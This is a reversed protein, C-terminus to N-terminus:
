FVRRFWIWTAISFRLSIQQSLFNWVSRQPSVIFVSNIRWHSRNNQLLNILWRAAAWNPRIMWLICRASTGFCIEQAHCDKLDSLQKWFYCSSFIFNSKTGVSHHFNQFFFYLFSFFIHSFIWQGCNKKWWTQDINLKWPAWHSPPQWQSTLAQTNVM